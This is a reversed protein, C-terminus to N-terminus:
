VFVVAHFSADSQKNRPPCRSFISFGVEQDYIMGRVYGNIRPIGELEELTITRDRRDKVARDVENFLGPFAQQCQVDDLQYNKEDRRFDWTGNFKYNNPVRYTYSPTGTLKSSAGWPAKSPYFQVLAICCTVVVAVGLIYHRRLVSICSHAFEFGPRDRLGM